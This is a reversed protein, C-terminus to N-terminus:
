TMATFTRPTKRAQLYAMGCMTSRWEPEIMLTELKTAIRPQETGCSAYVAEFPATRDSVRESATWNAGLPIRVLAM